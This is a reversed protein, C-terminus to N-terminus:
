VIIRELVCIFFIRFQQAELYQGLLTGYNRPLTDAASPYQVRAFASLIITPKNPELSPYRPSCEFCKIVWPQNVGDEKTQFIARKFSAFELRLKGAESPQAETLDFQFCLKLLLKTLLLEFHQASLRLVVM